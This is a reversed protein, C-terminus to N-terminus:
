SQKYRNTEFTKVASERNLKFLLRYNPRLYRMRGVRSLYNEVFPIVDTMKNKLAIQYWLSALEDNLNSNLNLTDKLNNYITESIEKEFLSYLFLLKVTTHFSNFVEKANSPIQGNLFQRALEHSKEIM